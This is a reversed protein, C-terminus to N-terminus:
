HASSCSVTCIKIVIHDICVVYFMCAGKIVFEASKDMLSFIGSLFRKFFSLFYLDLDIASETFDKYTEIFIINKNIGVEEFIQRKFERHM